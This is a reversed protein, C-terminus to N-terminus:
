TLPCVSIHLPPRVPIHTACWMPWACATPQKGASEVGLHWLRLSRPVCLRWHTMQIFESAAVCWVVSGVLWGALGRNLAVQHHLHCWDLTDM